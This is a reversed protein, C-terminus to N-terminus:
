SLKADSLSATHNFTQTLVTSFPKKRTPLQDHNVFGPLTSSTFYCKPGPGDRKDLTLM